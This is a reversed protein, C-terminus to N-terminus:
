KIRKKEDAQKSNEGYYIRIFLSLHIRVKITDQRTNSKMDLFLLCVYTTKSRQYMILKLFLCGLFKRQKFLSYFWAETM